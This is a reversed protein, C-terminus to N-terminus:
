KKPDGAAAPSIVIQAASLSGKRADHDSAVRLYPNDGTDLIWGVFNGRADFLYGSPGSALTRAKEGFILYYGSGRSELKVAQDYQPRWKRFDDLTQVSWPPEVANKLEHDRYIMWPVPLALLGALILVVEVVRRLRAMM